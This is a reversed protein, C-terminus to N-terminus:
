ENREREVLEVVAPDTRLRDIDSFLHAHARIWAEGRDWWRLELLFAVVDEDFRSRIQRAPVGGVISYPSVDRTVVAGAGIIAGHGVQVGGLVQAGSGIWVDHGVATTRYEERNTAAVLDYGLKPEALYFAPHTSAYRGTPHEAMGVSCGPALSCFSGIKAHSIRSGAEAYSYDGLTSHKIHVRPGLRCAHGFSSAVITQEHDSGLDVLGYRRKRARRALVRRLGSPVLDKPGLRDPDRSRQPIDSGRTLPARPSPQRPRVGSTAATRSTDPGPGLRDAVM